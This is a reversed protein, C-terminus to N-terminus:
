PVMTTAPTSAAVSYSSSGSTSSVPAYASAVTTTKQSAWAQAWVSPRLNTPTPAERPFSRCESARSQGSTCDASGGSAAMAIAARNPAESSVAISM